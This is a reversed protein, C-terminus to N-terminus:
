AAGEPFNLIAFEGHLDVAKADYVRAAEEATKLTQSSWKVGNSTIEARFGAGSKTVGRFGSKSAPRYSNACNQAHTCIRINARRNDLGNGNKHDVVFGPPANLIFRHMLMTRLQGGVASVRTAYICRDTSARRTWCYQNVRDLDEADVLAFHGGGLPVQCAGTDPCVRTSSKKKQPDPGPTHKSEAM